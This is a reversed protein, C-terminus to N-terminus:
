SGVEALLPAPVAGVPFAGGNWLVPLRPLGRAVDLFKRGVVQPDCRLDSVDWVPGLPLRSAMALEQLERRTLRIFAQEVIDALAAAHTRRGAASDFRADKLREDGCLACLAPWDAPTYVLAVYGDACKLLPWEATRGARTTVTGMLAASAASKWNLWVAVELLSVTAETARPRQLLAAILAAYASLGGAYALQHGGLRLPAEQPEGVMDLLGGLAMITFESQPGTLDGELMALGIRAAGESPLDSRGIDSLVVDAAALLQAAIAPTDAVSHKGAALFAFVASDGRPTFPPLNRLPDGGPSELLVVRAGLDAAIRGAMGSALRLAIPCDPSLAEVVTYGALPRHAAIM